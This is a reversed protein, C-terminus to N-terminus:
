ELSTYNCLTVQKKLDTFFQKNWGQKAFARAAASTSMDTDYNFIPEDSAWTGLM